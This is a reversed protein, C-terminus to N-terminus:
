VGYGVILLANLIEKLLQDYIKAYKKPKSNKNILNIVNTMGMQNKYYLEDRKEDHIEFTGDSIM